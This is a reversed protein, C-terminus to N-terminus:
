AQVLNLQAVCSVSIMPLCSKHMSLPWTACRTWWVLWVIARASLLQMCGYRVFFQTFGSALVGFPLQRFTIPAYEVFLSRPAFIANKSQVARQEVRPMMPPPPSAVTEGQSSSCMLNNFALDTVPGVLFPSYPSDDSQIQTKQSGTAKTGVFSIAYPKRPLIYSSSNADPGAELETNSHNFAILDLDPRYSTLDGPANIREGTTFNWGMKWEEIPDQVM